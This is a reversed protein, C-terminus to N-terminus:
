WRVNAYVNRCYRIWCCVTALGIQPL